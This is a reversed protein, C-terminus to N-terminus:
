KNHYLANDILQYIYNPNTLREQNIKIRRKFSHGDEIKIYYDDELLKLLKTITRHSCGLKEAYYQNRGYAYGYQQSNSILLGLLLAAKNPLRSELITLPIKIFSDM